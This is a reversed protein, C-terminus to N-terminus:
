VVSVATPASSFYVEWCLFTKVSLATQRDPMRLKLKKLEIVIVLTMCM